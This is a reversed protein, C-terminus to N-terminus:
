QDGRLLVGIIADPNIGGYVLVEQFHSAFNVAIPHNLHQAALEQTSVDIIPYTVRSLDIAVVPSPPKTGGSTAFYDAAELSYTTSVWPHINFGWYMNLRQQGVM